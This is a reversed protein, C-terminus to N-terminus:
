KYYEAYAEKRKDNIFVKALYVSIFSTGIAIALHKKMFAAHRGKLIPRPLSNTPNSVADAM